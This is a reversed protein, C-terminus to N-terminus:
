QPTASAASRRKWRRWFLGGLPTLLAGGGIVIALAALLCDWGRKTGVICGFDFLATGLAVVFTPNTFLAVLLLQWWPAEFGLLWWCLLCAVLAGGVLLGAGFVSAQLDMTAGVGAGILFAAVVYGVVFPPVSKM